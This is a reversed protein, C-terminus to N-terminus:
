YLLSIEKLNFEKVIADEVQIKLNGSNSIGLIIGAFLKGDIDRFSSPKGKRFLYSEYESKLHDMQGNELLIFYIKIQRIIEQLIEELDFVKGGVLRLSSAKPLDKFETQNVNLGIGIISDQLQNIKIVNEILIGALKKNDSLIDNPWKITLNKILHKELVKFISLCVVISIYFSQEVKLFSVDKYVSFTLNKSEQTSWKTGMQGRGNTQLEASVVTYDEIGEEASLQRLFSNTSDIANLKIIRM